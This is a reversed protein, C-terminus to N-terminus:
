DDGALIGARRLVVEDEEIEKALEEDSKQKTENEVNVTTSINIGNDLDGCAQLITRAAPVDGALAKTLLARYINPKQAVIQGGTSDQIYKLGEPRNRVRWATVTSIGAAEAKEADTRTDELDVHLKLYREHAPRLAM